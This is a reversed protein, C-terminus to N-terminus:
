DQFDKEGIMVYYEAKKNKEDISLLGILGCPIGDVEIFADKWTSLCTIIKGNKNSIQM